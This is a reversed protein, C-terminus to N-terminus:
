AQKISKNMHNIYTKLKVRSKGPIKAAGTAPEDGMPTFDNINVINGAPDLIM